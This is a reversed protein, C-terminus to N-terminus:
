FLLTGNIALLFVTALTYKVLVDPFETSIVAVSTRLRGSPDVFDIRGDFNSLERVLVSVTVLLVSSAGFRSLRLFLRLKKSGSEQVAVPRSVSLIACTFFFPDM